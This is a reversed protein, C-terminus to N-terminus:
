TPGSGGHDTPGVQCKLKIELPLQAKMWWGKTQDPCELNKFMVLAEKVMAPLNQFEETFNDSNEVFADAIMKTGLLFRFDSEDDDDGSEGEENDKDKFLEEVDPKPPKRTTRERQNQNQGGQQAAIQYFPIYAYIM